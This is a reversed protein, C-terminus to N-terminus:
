QLRSMLRCLDKREFQTKLYNHRKNMDKIHDIINLNNVYISIIYFRTSSRRIFMYTCDDSNFYGKNLIFEKLQNYWM